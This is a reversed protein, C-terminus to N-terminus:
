NGRGKGRQYEEFETEAAEQSTTNPNAMQKQKYSILISNMEFRSSEGLARARAQGEPTSLDANGISKMLSKYGIIKIAKVEATDSPAPIYANLYMPTEDATFAAGSIFQRLPIVMQDRMMETLQADDPKIYNALPSKGLMQYVTDTLSKGSDKIGEGTDLGTTTNIGFLSAYQDAASIASDAMGFTKIEQELPKKSGGTPGKGGASLKVVSGEENIVYDPSERFGEIPEGKKNVDLNYVMDAIIGEDAGFAFGYKELGSGRVEITKNVEDTAKSEDYTRGEDRVTVAAAAKADSRTNYQDSEYARDEKRAADDYARDELRAARAQQLAEAKAKEVAVAGFYAGGGKMADGLAQGMSYKAPRPGLRDYITKGM